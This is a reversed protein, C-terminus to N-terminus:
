PSLHTAEEFARRLFIHILHRKYEVSGEADAVPQADDALADAADDLRQSATGVDGVLLEEAAASRRPTPSVSGVAVRARAITAGDALDLVLGLGLMPYEHIQFKQYAARQTASLL